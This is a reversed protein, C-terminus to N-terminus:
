FLRLQGPPSAPAEGIIVQDLRASLRDWDLDEPELAEAGQALLAECGQDGGPVAFVTRGQQWARRATSMSGSDEGSQVVIVARSLGSTIRNRAILSQPSVTFQPHLESLVAGSKAIRDALPLNNAPYIQQVGCGLVALTRADAELAGEHAATDIGMALGSVVTWGRRALEYGLQQALRQSEPRPTRTGVVAVARSDGAHLDGLVFLAPPADECRLLNAPYVADEWTIIRIGARAFEACQAEVASLDIEAIASAITNGIRHVRQLEDPTANFVAELSGFHALIQTILKGGIRGTIALAIWHISSM